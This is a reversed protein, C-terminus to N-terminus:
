FEQKPPLTYYLVLRPQLEIEAKSSYFAVRSITASEDNSRVLFGYNPYKKGLMGHLSPSLDFTLTSDSQTGSYTGTAPEENVEGKIWSAGEMRFIRCDYADFADRISNQKNVVIKLLARNVHITSDLGELDFKIFSRFAIGKGIYFFDNDLNLNTESNLVLFADLKSYVKTTDRKIGTSDRFSYILELTPVLAPDGTEISYFSSIFESEMSRMWFGHNVITSDVWGQVTTTDLAVEIQKSSDEEFIASQLRSNNFPLQPLYLEPDQTNDWDFDSLFFETLYPHAQTWYTSDATGIKEKVSLKLKASHIQGSDPLSVFKLYVASEYNDYKGLLLSSATGTKVLRAYFQETGSAQFLLTDVIAGERDGFIQNYATPLPKEKGCNLIILLTVLVISSIKFYSM